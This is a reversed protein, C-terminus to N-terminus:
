GSGDHAGGMQFQRSGSHGHVSRKVSDILAAGREEGDSACWVLAPADRHGRQIAIAAQALLLPALAAGPDGMCEVPHDVRAGEDFSPSHRLYAVGWEKAWFSEGNLGAYVSRIAPPKSSLSSFLARFADALGDGLHPDPAHLHGKERATGVGLIRALPDRGLRKGHGPRGLLVFAAGEGPIFGDSLGRVFLRQADWLVDLLPLDAHSDVGGLLVCEHSTSLKRLAEALALLGGARGHPFSKSARLELAVGAQASLQSLLEAGAEASAEPVALLLPLPGPIGRLAEQLAYTAIRLMRAHRLVPKKLMAESLALAPLHADELFGALIPQSHRDVFASERIRVIGARLSAATTAATLGVPTTMGVQLIEATQV